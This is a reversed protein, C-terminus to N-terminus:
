PFQERKKTAALAKIRQGPKLDWGLSIISLERQADDDHKLAYFYLASALSTRDAGAKCHILLPKTCYKESGLKATM